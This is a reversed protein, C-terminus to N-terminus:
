SQKGGEAARLASVREGHDLLRDRASEYGYRDHACHLWGM